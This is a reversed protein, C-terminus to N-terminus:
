TLSFRQRYDDPATGVRRHFARRMTEASGFGSATAITAVGMDTSELLSRAHEVRSREVFVAPTVGTEKAFLRQFHRVSLHACDALRALSHDAGPDSIIRNTVDRISGSTPPESWVATSFQSQGGPRRSFMVLWRAVTQAVHAGLDAEVLALALDIGATVGASTWINGDQVFVADPTVNAMAFRRAFVEIFAWHTTCSRGDLLGAHGLIFAGTCVSAIRAAGHHTKLWECLPLATGPQRAAFGGAFVVTDLESPLTATELRVGSESTVLGGTPSVISVDYFPSVRESELVQNAAVFVEHPGFVDLPQVGDFAVVAIRHLAVVPTHHEQPSTTLSMYGV